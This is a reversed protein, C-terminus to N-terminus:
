GQGGIDMEFPDNSDLHDILNSDPINGGHANKAEDFMRKVANLDLIRNAMMGCQIFGIWRHLKTVPWNDAHAEIQNCMWLLHKPHLAKPLGSQTAWPEQILDRCKLAMATILVNAAM